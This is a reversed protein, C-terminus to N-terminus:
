QRLSFTAFMICAATFANKHDNLHQVYYICMYDIVYSILLAYAGM